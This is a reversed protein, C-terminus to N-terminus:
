GPCRDIMLLGAGLLLVFVLAIQLRTHKVRAHPRATHRQCKEAGKTQGSCIGGTPSVSELGTKGNLCGTREGPRKARQDRM